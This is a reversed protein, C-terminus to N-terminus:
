LKVENSEGSSRVLALYQNLLFSIRKTKFTAEAIPFMSIYLGLMVFSLLEIWSVGTSDAVKSIALVTAILGPIIGIKDIAGLLFSRLSGLQTSTQEFKDAVYKISNTSFVDLKEFLEAEQGGAKAIIAIIQGTFDKYFEKVSLYQFLIAGAAIAYVFLVMWQLVLRVEENSDGWTSPPLFYLAALLGVIILLVCLTVINALSKFRSKNAQTDESNVESRYEIILQYIRSVEASYDISASYESPQEM